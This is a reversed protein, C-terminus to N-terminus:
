TLRASQVFVALHRTTPQTVSSKALLAIPLTLRLPVSTLTSERVVPFTFLSPEAHDAPSSRNRDVPPLYVVTRGVDPRETFTPKVRIPSLAASVM